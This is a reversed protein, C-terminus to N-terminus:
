LFSGVTNQSIISASTVAGMSMAKSHKQTCTINGDPKIQSATAAAKIIAQTVVKDKDKNKNILM